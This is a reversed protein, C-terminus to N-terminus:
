EKDSSPVGSSALYVAVIIINIHQFANNASSRSYLSLELARLLTPYNSCIEDMDVVQKELFLHMSHPTKADGRM